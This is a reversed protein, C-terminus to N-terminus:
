LETLEAPSYRSYVQNALWQMVACYDDAYKEGHKEEMSSTEYQHDRILDMIINCRSKTLKVKPGKIGKTFFDQLGKAFDGPQQAIFAM